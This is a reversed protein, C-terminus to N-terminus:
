SSGPAPVADAPKSPESKAKNAEDQSKRRSILGTAIKLVDTMGVGQRPTIQFRGDVILSPTAALQYDKTAKEARRVLNRVGFSRWARDFQQADVERALFFKRVKSDSDLRNRRQLIEVFLDRHLVDLKKLAKAVYYAKAHYVMTEHWVAPILIINVDKAYREKWKDFTTEFSFCHACGYWFFEIVEPKSPDAVRQVPSLETYHVGPTYQQAAAPVAASVALVLLASCLLAPGFRILPACNSWSGRHTNVIRDTNM